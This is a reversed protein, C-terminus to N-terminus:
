QADLRPKLVVCSATNSSAEFFSEIVPKAAAGAPAACAPAIALTLNPDSM